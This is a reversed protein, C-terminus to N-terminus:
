ILKSSKHIPTYPLMVIPRFYKESQKSSEGTNKWTMDQAFLFTKVNKCAKCLSYFATDTELFTDYM